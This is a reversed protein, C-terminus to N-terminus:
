CCPSNRSDQNDKPSLIMVRVVAHASLNRIEQFTGAALAQKLMELLEMARLPTQYDTNFLGRPSSMVSYLLPWASQVSQVDLDSPFLGLVDKDLAAHDAIDNPVTELTTRLARKASTPPAIESVTVEQSTSALCTV